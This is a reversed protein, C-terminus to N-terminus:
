LRFPLLSKKGQLHQLAKKSIITRFFILKLVSDSIRFTKINGEEALKITAAITTSAKTTTDYPMSKDPPPLTVSIYLHFHSHLIAYEANNDLNLIIEVLNHSLGIEIHLIIIGTQHNINEKKWPEYYALFLIATLVVLSFVIGVVGKWSIQHQSKNRKQM